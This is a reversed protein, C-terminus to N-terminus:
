ACGLEVFLAMRGILTRLVLRLGPPYVTRSGLM